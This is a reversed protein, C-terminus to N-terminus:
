EARLRSFELIAAIVKRRGFQQAEHFLGNGGVDQRGTEREIEIGGGKNGNYVM